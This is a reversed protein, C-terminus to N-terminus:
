CRRARRERRRHAHRRRWRAQPAQPHLLRLRRARVDYVGCRHAYYDCYPQRSSYRRQQHEGICGARLCHCRTFRQVVVHVAKCHYLTARSSPLLQDVVAASVRTSCPRCAHTSHLIRHLGASSRARFSVGRPGPFRVRVDRSGHARRHIHAQHAGGINAVPQLHHLAGDSDRRLPDSRHWEHWRGARGFVAGFEVFRFHHNGVFPIAM